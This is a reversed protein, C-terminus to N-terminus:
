AARRHLYKRLWWPSVVLGVLALLMVVGVLLLGLLKLSAATMALVQTFHLRERPKGEIFSASFEVLEHRAQLGLLARKAQAAQEEAWHRQDELSMATRANARGKLNELKQAHEQQKQAEDIKQKFQETLDEGGITLGRVQGIKEMAALAKEAQDAPIKGRISACALKGEDSNFAFDIIFGGHDRVVQQAQRAGRLADKVL